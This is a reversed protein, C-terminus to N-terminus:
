RSARTVVQGDAGVAAIVIEGDTFALTRELDEVDVYIEEWDAVMAGFYESALVPDADVPSPLDRGVQFGAGSPELAVAGVGLTPWNATATGDRFRFPASDNAADMLISLFWSPLGAGRLATVALQVKSLLPEGTVAEDLARKLHFDLGRATADVTSPTVGRLGDQNKELWAAVQSLNSNPFKAVAKVVRALAKPAWQPPAGVPIDLPRLVVKSEDVRGGAWERLDRQTLGLDGLVCGPDIILKRIPDYLLGNLALDRWAHDAEPDWGFVFDGSSDDLLALKFPAYELFHDVTVWDNKGTAPGPGLRYAHVISSSSINVSPLWAKRLGARTNPLLKMASFCILDRLLGSPADGALDIDSVRTAGLAVDRVAGGALYLSYGFERADALLQAALGSVRSSLLQVFAEALSDSVRYSNVAPPESAYALPMAAVWEHPAVAADKLLTQDVLVSTGDATRRGLTTGLM